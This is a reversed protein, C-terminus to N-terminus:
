YLVLNSGTLLTYIMNFLFDAAMLVAFVITIVLAAKPPTRYVFRLASGFVFKMFLTILIGWSISIELCVYGHLNLPYDFYEWLFIGFLQDLVFGTVLEVITPFLTAFVFYATYKKLKQRSTPTEFLPKSFFRVRDPVSFFFYMLCVSIGYIPCIPLLLFGRDHFGKGIGFCYVSELLFGIFSILLFLLFVYKIKGKEKAFSM